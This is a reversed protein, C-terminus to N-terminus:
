CLPLSVKSVALMFCYGHGCHPVYMSAFEFQVLQPHGCESKVSLGDTVEPMVASGDLAEVDRLIVCGESGIMSRM